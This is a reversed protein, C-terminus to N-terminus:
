LIQNQWASSGYSISILWYLPMSRKQFVELYWGLVETLMNFTLTMWPCSTLSLDFRFNQTQVAHYMKQTLKEDLIHFIVRSCKKFPGFRVFKSFRLFVSIAPFLTFFHDKKIKLVGFSPWKKFLYRSSIKYVYVGSLTREYINRKIFIRFNRWNKHFYDRKNIIKLIKM